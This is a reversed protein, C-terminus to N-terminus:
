GPSIAIARGSSSERSRRNISTLVSVERYSYGQNFLEIVKDRNENSKETQM